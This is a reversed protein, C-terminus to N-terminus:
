QSLLEIFTIGLPEKVLRRCDMDELQSWWADLTEYRDIISFRPFYHSMVAMGLVRLPFTLIRVELKSNRM